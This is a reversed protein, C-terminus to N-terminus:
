RSEGLRQFRKSLGLLLLSTAGALAATFAARSAVDYTGFVGHPLVAYVLGDAFVGLVPFFGSHM